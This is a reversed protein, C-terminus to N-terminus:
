GMVLDLKALTAVRDVYTLPDLTSQVEAGASVIAAVVVGAEAETLEAADLVAGILTTTALVKAANM